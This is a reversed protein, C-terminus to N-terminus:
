YSIEILILEKIGECQIIFFNKKIKLNIMNSGIGDTLMRMKLRKGGSQM